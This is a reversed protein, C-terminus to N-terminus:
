FPGFHSFQDEGAAEDLVIPCQRRRKLVSDVPLEPMQHFVRAMRGQMHLFHLVRSLDPFASNGLAIAEGKLHLPSTQTRRRNLVWSTNLFGQPALSCLESPVPKSALFPGPNPPDQYKRDAEIVERSSQSGEEGDDGAEFGTDEVEVMVTAAAAQRNIEAPDFDFQFGATGRM